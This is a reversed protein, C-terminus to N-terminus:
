WCNFACVRKPFLEIDLFTNQLFGEFAFLLINETTNESAKKENRKSKISPFPIESDHVNLKILLQWIELVVTYSIEMKGENKDTNLLM